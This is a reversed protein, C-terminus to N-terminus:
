DSLEGHSVEGRGRQPQRVDFSSLSVLPTRNRSRKLSRNVLRSDELAELVEENSLDLAEGVQAPSPSRGIEMSLRTVTAQVAATREDMTPRARATWATDRFYRKLAGVMTAVAYSSFATTSAPDFGDIAEVLGVKAAQVLDELSEPGPQYRRVLRRALPMFREVLEDRARVDGDRHYRLLLRRDEPAALEPHPTAVMSTPSTM